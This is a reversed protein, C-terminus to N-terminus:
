RGIHAAHWLARLPRQSTREISHNPRVTPTAFLLLFGLLLGGTSLLTLRPMGGDAIAFFLTVAILSSIGSLLLVRILLSGFRTLRGYPKALRLWAGLVGLFGLFPLAAMAAFMTSSTGTAAGGLGAWLGLPAFVILVCTAPLGAFVALAVRVTPRDIRDTLAM